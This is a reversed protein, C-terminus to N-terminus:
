RAKAGPERAQREATLREVVARERDGEEKRKLRYFVTALMVHGEIFDPSDRTVKKLSAHAADLKGTALQVGAIQYLAALNGPRVRLARELFPLAEDYRQDQKLLAGYNLNCDFDNPDQALGKHFAQLARDHDGTQLLAMAYYPYVGPLDPNKEVAKELQERAGAFDKVM